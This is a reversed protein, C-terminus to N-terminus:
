DTTTSISVHLVLLIWFLAFITVPDLVGGIANPTNGSKIEAAHAATPISDTDSNCDVLSCCLVHHIIQPDIEQGDESIDKSSDPQTDPHDARDENERNTLGSRAGSVFKDSLHLPVLVSAVDDHVL